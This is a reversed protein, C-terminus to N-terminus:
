NRAMSVCQLTFVPIPVAAFPQPWAILTLKVYFIKLAKPTIM